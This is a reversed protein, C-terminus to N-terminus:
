VFLTAPKASADCSNMRHLHEDIIHLIDRMTGLALISFFLHHQATGEPDDLGSVNVLINCAPQSLYMRDWSGDLFVRRNRIKDEALVQVHLSLALDDKALLPHALEPSLIATPNPM